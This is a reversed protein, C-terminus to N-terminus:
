LMIKLLKAVGLRIHKDLFDTAFYNCVRFIGFM